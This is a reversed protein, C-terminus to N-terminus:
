DLYNYLPTCDTSTNLYSCDPTQNVYELWCPLPLFIYKRGMVPGQWIESWTEGTGDHGAWDEVVVVVVVVLAVVLCGSVQGSGSQSKSSTATAKSLLFRQASSSQM